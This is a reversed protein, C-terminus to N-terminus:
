WPLKCTPSSQASRHHRWCHVPTLYLPVEYSDQVLVRSPIIREVLPSCRAVPYSRQAARRDLSHPSACCGVFYSHTTQSTSIHAPYCHYKHDNQIAQHRHYSTYTRPRFIAFRDSDLKESRQDTIQSRHDTPKSGQDDPDFSRGDNGM